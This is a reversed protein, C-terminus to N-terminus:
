PKKERVMDAVENAKREDRFEGFSESGGSCTGDGHTTLECRVVEFREVKRVAVEVKRIDMKRSWREARKRDGSHPVVYRSAKM